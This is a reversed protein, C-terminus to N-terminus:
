APTPQPAGVDTLHLHPPLGSVTAHADRDITIDVRHEAITLGRVAIESTSPARRAGLRVEGRPVDVTLGLTAQLVTIGAAASWAQPRCAGPYPIPRGVEDRSDGGYLERLRAEFAEGATLRGQILPAADAGASTLGLLAIATDDPWVSGCRYSLPEFGVDFSPM